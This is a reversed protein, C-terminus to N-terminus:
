IPFDAAKQGDKAQRRIYDLEQHLWRQEEELLQHFCSNQRRYLSFSKNGVLCELWRQRLRYLRARKLGLLECAEEESLRHWNFAELIEEAFDQLLRKPPQSKM